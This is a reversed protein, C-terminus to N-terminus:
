RNPLPLGSDKFRKGYLELIAAADSEFASLTVNSCPRGRPIKSACGNCILIAALFFAPRKVIGGKPIDEAFASLEVSLEAIGECLSLIWNASATWSGGTQLYDDLSVRLVDLGKQLDDDAFEWNHPLSNRLKGRILELCDDTPPNPSDSV